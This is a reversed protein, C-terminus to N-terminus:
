EGRAVVVVCALQVLTVPLWLAREWRSPTIANLLAGVALLAVVAWV